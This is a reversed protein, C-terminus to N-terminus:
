QNQITDQLGGIISYIPAIMMMVMAGVAVGITLMMVPEILSTLRKLSYDVEKEYFNAVEALVDELTGSTEGARVTQIMVSPFVNRGSALVSSITEGKAVHASFSRSIRRMDPSTVSESSVDLAEIVPVGSKLLTSFTRSFRAVDISKVVNKVVPARSLLSIIVRKTKPIIFLSVVGIGAAISALLVLVTNEGFFQGVALLAKTYIPLEVDLSLFAGALRPLVFLAMLLGNGIMAVVIVAPYMLSGKIKQSLDHSAALQSALYDFSKEMTGSEEGVRVITLFIKDFDDSYQELVSSISKGKKAQYSLDALIQQMKPNKSEQRIIEVAEPVSMGSRLMTAMFRCFSSKESVSIGGFSFSGVGGVKKISIVKDGQASIASAANQRSTAQITDTYVKGSTDTAKYTFLPM